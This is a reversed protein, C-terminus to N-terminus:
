RREMAARYVELYQDAIVSWDLAKARARGAAGLRSRLEADALLRVLTQGLALVDEKPVLLGEVGDTVVEGIGGSVTAVFPTGSAMSEISVLPLGEDVRSPIVVVSAGAFLRPVTSRDAPGLLDVSQDVGLESILARLRQEEPGGGAILLRHDHHDIGSWARVLLDFGKQPVLRGVALAYPALELPEATSFASLNAGNFVVRAGPVAAGLFTEVDSLTKGSCATFAAAQRAAERLLSPLQDSVEFSRAADMTLEGQATVVLPLGLIRSARLAYLTNSSVCQVHLVDAGQKRLLSHFERSVLRNTLPYSLRGRLSPHPLRFALRHIPIGDTMESSPLSRPWRNTYVSVQHGAKRYALALQRSLEEVGGISPRYASPIL